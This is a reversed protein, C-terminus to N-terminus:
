PSSAHPRPSATRAPSAVSRGPGPVPGFRRNCDRVGSCDALVRTRHALARRVVAYAPAHYRNRLQQPDRARDFLLGSGPHGVRHGYLYRRTTVGRYDWGRTGRVTAGTQVLVTDRRGAETLPLGDLRRGPTAGAWRVFTAPLDVLTVPRQARVGRGLGPGRVLLPVDLAEDFLLNKGSWRHEGFMFGNDSSVVIYTRALEGSDRLQAVLHAISDDVSRLARARARALHIIWRQGRPSRRLDPPLDAVNRENFAAKGLVPPRYRTYAGRYARESPPPTWDPRPGPFVKAMEHPAPHFAYLFFPAGDFGRIVRAVRRRIAHTTYGDDNGSTHFFGPRWYSLVRRTIPQWRSWGRLAGWAGSYGNLFKGIFATRYGRDQMWAGINDHPRRMSRFGGWPGVNEKVGMNQAYQGTVLEARAPCCLPHPSLAHTYNVGQRGILRRTKPLFRLEDARMDDVLVLVINPRDVAPAAAPTTSAVGADTPVTVGAAVVVALLGAGVAAITTRRMM